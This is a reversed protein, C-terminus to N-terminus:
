VGWCGGGGPCRCHFFEDVKSFTWGRGVGPGKETKGLRLFEGKMKTHIAHSRLEPTWSVEDIARGGDPISASM